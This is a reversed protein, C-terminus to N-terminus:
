IKEDEAIPESMARSYAGIGAARFYADQAASDQKRYPLTCYYFAAGFAVLGVAWHVTQGFLLGSAIALFWALDEAVGLKAAAIEHEVELHVLPDNSNRMWQM